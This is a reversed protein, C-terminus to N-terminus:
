EFSIPEGWVVWVMMLIFPVVIIGLLLYTAVTNSEEYQISEIQSFPISGEFPQYSDNVLEFGKGYLSDEKFVYGGTAFRYEKFNILRVLIESPIDGREVYEKYENPSVIETSYCGVLNLLAVVLLSSILKKYMDDEV